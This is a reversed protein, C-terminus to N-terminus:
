RSWFILMACRQLRAALSQVLTVAVTFFKSRSCWSSLLRWRTSHMCCPTFLPMRFIALLTSRVSWGDLTWHRPTKVSCKLCQVCGLLTTDHLLLSVLLCISRDANYLCYYYPRKQGSIDTVVSGTSDIHVACDPLKCAEVYAQIQAETYLVVYFPYLGIGQIFGDVGHAGPISAQFAERMIDLEIVPNDHLRNKKNAEYVAQRFIQKSQSATTNGANLEDDDMKSLKTEHYSAPTHLSKRIKDAAKQRDDRSLFRRNPQQPQLEAIAAADSHARRRTVAVKVEVDQGEDPM